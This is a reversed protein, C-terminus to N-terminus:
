RKAEATSARAQQLYTRAEKLEPLRSDAHEWQRAFQAYANVATQGDGSRAAARAAGLLSRARNPHRFLSAAYQRAAEAPRGARLLIDGYLEHSPKVPPGSPPGMAEDLATAKQMIAIADEIKGKAAAAAATVALEQIEATKVVQEVAAEEVKPSKRRIAQLEAVSDQAESSDTRAAALGRAFAAPAAAVAALGQSSDAGATASSDKATKPSAPLLKKSADWQETEVVFEAAMSAHTYAGYAVMRPDDKPFQERSRQMIELLGEADRYRGQQLYSYLLWHLSHYDRQSIPLDNNKVWQDSNKWAAENAAVADPWMGLRQFVHLPMHQAHHAPPAIAVYHRAVPLALIAHDPDDFAHIIYHAAGPHNRDQRYVDLVIAAARMRTRLAGPDEPDVTGLLALAYFTAAERDDPYDRHLQEMAAAYAKDRARKDGDGYLVKVAHLYAREKATLASTIAVKTLAQRAAETEQPDGWLPHNHTMAEGWYGMMFDPEIRTAARFEELAVPYWFSHLAAVGRLFHARADGSRASTQFDVRGLRGLNPPDGPKSANSEHASASGALAMVLVAALLVGVDRSIGTVAM